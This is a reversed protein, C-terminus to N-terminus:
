DSPPPSLKFRWPKLSDPHHQWTVANLVMNASFYSLLQRDPDLHAARGYHALSSEVFHNLAEATSRRTAAAFTDACRPVPDMHAILKQARRGASDLVGEPLGPTWVRELVWDGGPCPVRWQTRRGWTGYVTRERVSHLPPCYAGKRGRDSPDVLFLTEDDVIFHDVHGDEAGAHPEAFRWVQSDVVDFGRATPYISLGAPLRGENLRQEALRNVALELEASSLRRAGPRAHRAIVEAALTAWASMTGTKVDRAKPKNVVNIGFRAMLEDQIRGPAAVKDYALAHVGDGAAAVVQKVMALLQPAEAGFTRDVALAIAGHETWDYLAMYTIGPADKQDAGRIRTRPQIRAKRPDKAKSGIPVVGGRVLDDVPVVDTNRSLTVGDGFILHAPDPHAYDPDCGPLLHNHRRTHAVEITVQRRLLEALADPDAALRKAPYEIQDVSPPNLPVGRGTLETYARSCAEFLENDHQVTRALLEASRVIRECHSFSFMLDSPYQRVPGVSHKKRCVWELIDQCEYNGPYCVVEAIRQRDAPRVWGPGRKVAM